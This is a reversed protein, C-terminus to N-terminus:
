FLGKGKSSKEEYRGHREVWYRRDGIEIRKDAGSVSLEYQYMEVHDKWLEEFEGFPMNIEQAFAELYERHKKFIPNTLHIPPVHGSILYAESTALAQAVRRLLRLSPNSIQEPKSESELIDICDADVGVRRALEPSSLGRQVRLDRVRRGLEYDIVVNQVQQHGARFEMLDPLLKKLAERLRVELDSLDSYYIIEKKVPCGIVMRSLPQGNEVLLIVSSCAQLALQLEMGAGLSPFVAALILLDATAVREQDIEYVERAPVDPNANPDTKTRPRYLVVPHGKYSRCIEDVKEDLTEIKKRQEDNLGTLASAFYALLPLAEDEPGIPLADSQGFLSAFATGAVLIEPPIELAQAIRKILDLSPTLSGTEIKSIEPQSVGSKDALVDQKWHRRTRFQRIKDGVGTLRNMESM